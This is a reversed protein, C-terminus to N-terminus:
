VKQRAVQLFHPMAPGEPIGFRDPYLVDVLFLGNPSATISALNRNKLELLESVWSVPKQQAGVDMLVGAINRVMHHLFANATIDIFVLDGHRQVFVSMVNRMPTLSQCNAARFSSFDNEGVLLQGADHMLAANLVRHERALYEPMLASRVPHNHIIYTYRRAVASRRADFDNDVRGAWQVSIGDDLHANAGMVWAKDPRQVSTDFHIVQKTAHVGTDTRGAAHLVVPEAAIKSMALTLHHQITPLNESQFQWGHYSRGNYAAILAIRPM